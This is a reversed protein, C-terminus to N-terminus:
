ARYLAETELLRQKRWLGGAYGTLTGDAGIVRHCPILIAIQNAGNARAVARSATPNGMERALAGYSKTEGAPIEVLARWVEKTFETGHMVLPISFKPLTGNFYDSLQEKLTEIVPSTGFGMDGKSFQFLKEIERRLGKREAFELLHVHTRDAVVIMAGLPTDVWDVCLMANQKLDSPRVGTLNTFAERFASPSDFGAALQAELVSEGQALTAFGERLRLLRAMDLFTMGFTRKFQRRVSSPDFGMKTIDEERWRRSPDSTLQQYLKRMTADESTDMGTPDCRKCPRYGAELCEAVTQYFTCNKALPTRAPCTLRCFIGTSSVGVFAQDHFRGDRSSLAAYLTDFDPLTFLM